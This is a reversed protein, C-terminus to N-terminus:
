ARYLHWVIFLWVSAFFATATLIRSDTPIPLAGSKEEWAYYRASVETITFLGRLVISNDAPLTINEWDCDAPIHLTWKGPAAWAHYLLPVIDADFILRPEHDPGPGKSGM